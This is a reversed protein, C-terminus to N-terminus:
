LMMEDILLSDLVSFCRQPGVKHLWGKWARLWCGARGGLLVAMVVLFALQGCSVLAIHSQISLIAGGCGFLVM